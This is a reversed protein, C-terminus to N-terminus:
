SIYLIRLKTNPLIFIAITANISTIRPAKPAKPEKPEKPAAAKKVKKAPKESVVEAEDPEDATAATATVATAAGLTDDTHTDEIVEDLDGLMSALIADDDLTTSATNIQTNM